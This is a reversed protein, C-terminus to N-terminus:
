RGWQNKLATTNTIRLFQLLRTDFGDYIKRTHAQVELVVVQGERDETSLRTLM